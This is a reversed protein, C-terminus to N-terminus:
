GSTHQSLATGHMQTVVQRIHSVAREIDEKTTFRGLSMRLSSHADEDNLGMARLVYSPEMSASTCASGSSVALERLSMLLAEGDLASFCVNLHHPSVADTSGNRRVGPLGAIGQWLADRLAAIRQMEQRLSQKAYKAAEGMGVIQHTALTGSRMGREHGGGHIIPEVRRQVSRRVYLAGIGKPGYFKHASLSMLDVALEDVDLPVKGAAQAADTHLLVDVERCIKGIEAIPNIVGTENNVTMLSVLVTDDRLAAAVQGAGIVGNQDPKLWTVAVGHRELWQATDIIAKHEIISTVLHGHLWHLPQTPVTPHTNAYAAFVGKLALNDSETAGSTWVIERPDCAILEAVHRRALEVQEEAQWGYIHSRSAPNAFIGDATLCGAMARAVRPDVPTTAANDLYVPLNM